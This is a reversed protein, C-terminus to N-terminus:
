KVAYIAIEGNDFVREFYAPHAEFKAVGEPYSVRDAPDVYLYDIRRRRALQWAERADGTQYLRQVQRSGDEYEPMPLLSIPLGAGMRRQAFTPILSWHERGRLMPEMQVVADEPTSTQVWGFAEHQARSVPLTWHFGPGMRRNGTDQANYIDVATTPVGVVLIAAALAGAALSGVGGVRWLLRALLVPLLTQLTQGTRFGVWSSESITLTHMVLLSVTVGIGAVFLPQVPLARWPWLGAVAPLLVPGTSILLAKVTNTGANGVLWGFQVAAGAGGAVENIACWLLALAVPLAAQAHRLSLRITDPRRAADAVIALGYVACYLAGVFPNFITSMGLATGALWIAGRNGRAGCTAAVFAAVLGLACSLSHQPNYWLGRALGDIRLGDFQWASIADINIDALASLPRGRQWLQHLTYIGEASTALVTLGVALAAPGARPVATFALLFLMATLLTGSLMANAKLAGQVDGLAERAVVSPLLFYTWYYHMTRSAMYPNRPPSEYRGLEAALATHWVFDATFYARYWRTGSEDARGLRFYPPGMVAPVLLLVLAFARIDARSWAPLALLPSAIQRSLWILVAAQLLWSVAFTLASPISLYIPLWLALQTGGYGILAGAVWGAPQLRGAARQGLVVGPAVALAYLFAYLLGTLGSAAILAGLLAAASLAVWLVAGRV